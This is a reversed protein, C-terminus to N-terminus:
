ATDRAAVAAEIHGIAIDAATTGDAAAPDLGTVSLVATRPVAALLARVDAVKPGDPAAFANTRVQLGDHVDMDLHLYTRDTGDLRAAIDDAAAAVPVGHEAMVAREAEEIDRAGVLVTARLDAPVLGAHTRAM